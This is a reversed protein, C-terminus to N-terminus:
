NNPDSGCGDALSCRSPPRDGMVMRGRVYVAVCANFLADADVRSIKYREVLHELLDTAEAAATGGVEPVTITTTEQADSM